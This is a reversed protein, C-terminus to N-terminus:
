ASPHDCGDVAGYAANVAFQLPQLVQTPLHGTIRPVHKRVAGQLEDVEAVKDVPARGGEPM